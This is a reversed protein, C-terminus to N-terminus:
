KKQLELKALARGVAAKDEASLRELIIRQEKFTMFGTTTALQRLGIIDEVIKVLEPQLQNEHTQTTM